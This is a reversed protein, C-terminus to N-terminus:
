EDRWLDKNEYINGIVEIFKSTDRLLIHSDKPNRKLVVALMEDDFTVLRNGLISTVIDGEFIEVGNKDKMGTSQMLEVDEFKFGSTWKVTKAEDAYGMDVIVMEGDFHISKVPLMKELEKSWIRYKPIM